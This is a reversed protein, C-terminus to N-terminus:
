KIENKLNKIDDLSNISFSNVNKITRKVMGSLAKGPGIELYNNIGLKSMNILIDRWRVTSYIQEILLKKISSPDNDVNANVNNFVKTTPYIFKTNNIKDKMKDAAPKMLTCHFPASVKLPITKIKKEKLLEQFLDISNTEGSVIIQGDANDNAIECIGTIRKNNEIENKIELTNLGLVAIMKGKGIPVAEQMAKGRENLLYIADVYNLSESCVLASYEGLSHGAFFQFSSPKIDLEEKLVRFISYSITLIAPQANETLKLKEDPGELIIKSLNFKLVDDAQHFIKKVFDFNKYFELGMGVVQSGQGPFILAKM